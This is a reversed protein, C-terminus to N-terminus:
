ADGPSTEYLQEFLLRSRSLEEEAEEAAGRTELLRSLEGHTEAINLQDGHEEYVALAERLYREAVKWRGERQAIGSYVRDVDAVGLDFGLRAFRRAALTCHERATSLDGQALSAEAIHLYLLGRERVDGVNGLRELADRYCQLAKDHAGLTYYSFGLNSLGRVVDLPQDLRDFTEISQQYLDIAQEARGRANYMIALNGLIRARQVENGHGSAIALAKKLRDIAAKWQGGEFAFFGTSLLADARGEHYGTKDALALSREGLAIAGKWDGSRGLMGGLALLIVSQMRRDDREQAIRLATRFAAEAEELRGLMALLRGLRHQLEMELDGGGGLEDGPALFGLARSIFSAAEAPALAKEAKDAALLAYRFGRRQEGAAVFHHALDYVAKGPRDGVQRELAEGVSLHCERRLAPPLEEYLIERVKAHAFQFGNQDAAILGYRQELAHLRKLLGLRTGGALAALADINLRQGIVAAWDLLDRDEPSVQEVRRMVVDYVSGPIEIDDVDGQLEWHDEVRELAGQERLLALTELLFFPNGDSEGHLLAVFEPDLSVVNLAHAAIAGIEEAGMPRLAIEKYLRERAMRQLVERLPHREGSAGPLLEEPRYIGVLLIRTGRLARTMYHLLQLATTSAWQLDDLVLILPQEGALLAFFQTILEFAQSQGDLLSVQQLWAGMEGSASDLRVVREVDCLATSIPGGDDDGGGAERFAQLIDAFVAYPNPADGYLCDGALFLAGANEALTCLEHALRTKGTGAEGSILITSGLGSQARDFGDRLVDYERERGVLPLAHEGAEEPVGPSAPDIDVSIAAARPDYREVLRLAQTVEVADAPRHAPDKQLLRDVLADLIPPFEDSLDRLRPAPENLLRYIISVASPGTFPPQGTLMEYLVAGLSYLDSRADVKKGIAQEPSLYFVTGMVTGTRTMASVDTLHALGFDMLRAEAGPTLDAEDSPGIDGDLMINGPKLDRHIIGEAHAHALADAVQAALRVAERWELPGQQLREKLSGGRVLEMALYRQGEESGTEYVKVIHRHELRALARAERTFRLVMGPDARESLLKLAVERDTRLDLARYVEAAGGLGVLELLEFHDITRGIM